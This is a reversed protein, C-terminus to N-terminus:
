SQCLCRGKNVSIRSKASSGFQQFVDFFSLLSNGAPIVGLQKYVALLDYIEWEKEVRGLDDFQCIAINPHCLKRGTAAVGFVEATQTYECAVNYLMTNNEGFTQATFQFDQIAATAETLMSFLQERQGPKRMDMQLGAPAQWILNPSMLSDLLSFDQEFYKIQLYRRWNSENRLVQESRQTPLVQKDNYLVQSSRPPEAPFDVVLAEKLQGVISPLSLDSILGIQQSLSIEDWLEREEVLRGQQDFRAIAVGFFRVSCYTPARGAFVGQHTAEIFFYNGLMQGEGFMHHQITMDPFGTKFESARQELTQRHQQNSFCFDAGVTGHWQYGEAVWEEIADFRGGDYRCDIINKWAAINNAVQPDRNVNSRQIQQTHM